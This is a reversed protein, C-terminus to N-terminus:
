REDPTSRKRAGVFAVPSKSDARKELRRAVVLGIVAGLTNMVVDQMSTVRGHSYVQSIETALSLLFALAICRLATGGFRQRYFLAFPVYLVANGVIDRARIPPSVFPIWQVGQWHSHNQLTRWPFVIAIIVLVWVAFRHRVPVCWVAAAAVVLLGVTVLVSV